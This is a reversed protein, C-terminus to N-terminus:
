KASEQEIKLDIGALKKACEREVEHRMAKLALLRSSYLARGNQSWGSSYKNREPIPSDSTAHHVSDSRAYRVRVSYANFLFGSTEGKEPRPIDPDIQETFRLAKTIRAEEQLKEFAAKETKNM